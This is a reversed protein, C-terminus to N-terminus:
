LRVDGKDKYVPTSVLTRWDNLIKGSKIVDNFLNRPNDTGTAGMAKLAEAPINDSGAVGLGESGGKDSSGSRREAASWM